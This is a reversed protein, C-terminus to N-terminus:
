TKIDKQVTKETQKDSDEDPAAFDEDTIEASGPIEFLDDSINESTDNLQESSSEIEMGDILINIMTSGALNENVFRDARRIESDPKFFNIAPQGITIKSIGMVSFVIIALVIFLINKRSKYFHRFLFDLISKFFMNEKTNLNKKKLSRGKKLCLMAPIFVLTIVLAAIVGISTFLGFDRVPGAGSFALSGFGVATTLGTLFVPM